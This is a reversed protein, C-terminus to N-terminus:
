QILLTPLSGLARTIATHVSAKPLTEYSKSIVKVNTAGLEGAVHKMFESKRLDREVLNVKLDPRIIGLVLGPFGNGSGFDYVEPNSLPKSFCIELGLVSDAFHQKASFPATAQSVLNVKANFNLLIEYYRRLKARADDALHGLYSDIKDIDTQM